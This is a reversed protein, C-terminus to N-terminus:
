YIFRFVFNSTLISNANSNCNYVLCNFSTVLELKIYKCYRM